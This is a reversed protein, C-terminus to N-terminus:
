QQKDKRNAFIADFAKPAPLILITEIDLPMFRTPEDGLADLVAWAEPVNYLSGQYIFEPNYMCGLERSRYWLHACARVFRPGHLPEYGLAADIVEPNNRDRLWYRETLEMSIPPVKEEELECFGLDALHALEHILIDLAFQNRVDDVYVAPQRGNWRGAAELWPKLRLDLRRHYCGGVTEGGINEPVGESQLAVHVSRRMLKAAIREM